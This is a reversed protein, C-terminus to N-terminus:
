DVGREVGSGDWRGQFEIPCQAKGLLLVAEDAYKSRLCQAETPDLLAPTLDSLGLQPRDQDEAQKPECRPAGLVLRGYNYPRLIALRDVVRDVLLSRFRHMCCDSGDELQRVDREV